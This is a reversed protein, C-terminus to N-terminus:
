LVPQGQPLNGNCPKSDFTRAGSPVRRMHTLRAQSSDLVCIADLSLLPKPVLGNLDGHLRTSCCSPVVRTPVTPSRSGGVIADLGEVSWTEGGPDAPTQSRAEGGCGSAAIRVRGITTLGPPVYPEWVFGRLRTLGIADAYLDMNSRLPVITDIALKQKLHGM